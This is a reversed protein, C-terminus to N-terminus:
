LNGTDLDNHYKNLSGIKIISTSALGLPHVLPRATRQLTYPPFVAVTCVTTVWIAHQTHHPADSHLSYLQPTTTTTHLPSQSPLMFVHAYMCVCIVCVYICVYVCMNCVGVCVYM